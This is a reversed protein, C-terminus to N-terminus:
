LQHFHLFFEDDALFFDLQLSLSKLLVSMGQFHQVMLCHGLVFCIKRFNLKLFLSEIFQLNLQDFFHSNHLHSGFFQAILAVVM